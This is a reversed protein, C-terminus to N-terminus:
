DSRRVRYLHATAGNPLPYEEIFLFIESSEVVRTLERSGQTTWLMGQDGEVTVVYDPHNSAVIKGDVMMLRGVDAPAGMLRSFYQFGTANFRPLDPVLALSRARNNRASDDNLRILIDTLRWDERRPAGLIQFYHQLYLNWDWRLSGQYGKVLVVQEPLWSVGFNITYAQFLLIAIIVATIARTQWENKWSQLWAAPFIVLPVLLPMSFRPDKTRLLTLFLWGGILTVVLFGAKQILQNKWAMWCSFVVIIFLVSFLQYGELLRLYYVFSQFSLIEPEGEAQGVHANAELFRILNPLNPLYWIGALLSTTAVTIFFNVLRRSDRWLRDTLVVYSLPSVLFALCLWKTMMGLALTLGLLFSPNRRSFGETRRLVVLCVAVWATLWYDLITERSIWILYPTLALLLCAWRAAVPGRGFDIGLRYTAWFILATAPLNAFVATHPDPRFVLFLFAIVLHVFPPYVGSRQWFSVDSGYGHGNSPLYNLAYSQHMAM